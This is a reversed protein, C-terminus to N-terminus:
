ETQENNKNMRYKETGRYVKKVTTENIHGVTSCFIRGVVSTRKEMGVPISFTLRRM